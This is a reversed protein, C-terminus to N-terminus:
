VTIESLIERNLRHNSVFPNNKIYFRYPYDAGEKIGIRKTVVAKVPEEAANDAIFFKGRNLEMGNHRRDIGFTLCFKAPGNTLDHDNKLKARRKKMLNLGTCPEVARILVASGTGKRETVINFCHNNGYIFYVYIKGGDEFMVSNRATIRRYAHCAPDNDGLYAETEVIIGSIYNNREKKIIHKGLLQKAVTITDKFFFEAPTIRYNDPIEETIQLKRKLVM